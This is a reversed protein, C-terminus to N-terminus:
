NFEETTHSHQIEKFHLDTFEEEEWETHMALETWEFRQGGKILVIAWYKLLKHM